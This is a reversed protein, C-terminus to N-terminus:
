VSPVEGSISITVGGTPPVPIGGEWCKKVDPPTLRHGDGIHSQHRLILAVFEGSSSWEYQRHSCLSLGKLSNSNVSRVNQRVPRFEQCYASSLGDGACLAQVLAKATRVDNQPGKAIQQTVHRNGTAFQGDLESKNWGAEGIHHDTIYLGVWRSLQILSETYNANSFQPIAINVVARPFNQLCVQPSSVEVLAIAILKCTYARAGDTFLVGRTIHPHRERFQSLSAHASSLVMFGDEKRDNTIDHSYEVMLEQSTPSPKMFFMWGHWPIGAKGFFDSMSERFVAMLFKMKFDCVLVVQEPSM